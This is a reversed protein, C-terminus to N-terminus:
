KKFWYGIITGIVGFAWKQQADGYTNNSLIVFLASLLFILSIVVPMWVQESAYLTPSKQAKKPVPSPPSQLIFDSDKADDSEIQVKATSSSRSQPSAAAPAQPGAARSSEMIIKASDIQPNNNLLFLRYRYVFLSVVGLGMVIWPWWNNM